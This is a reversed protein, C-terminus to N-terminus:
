DKRIIVREGAEWDKYENTYYLYATSAPARFTGPIDAKLDLNVTKTEEPKLQRFYFVVYNKRIEYFDVVGKEQLEKLQWPQPSLGSPIGVLTVNMPLGENTKNKVTTTIRVLEGMLVTSNNTKTTIDVKCDTDSSPTRSTWSFDLSYPLPNETNFYSVTFSQRGPKQFRELNDAVIAEKDGSSYALENIKSGNYSIEIMGGGSSARNFKAYETLARLALITAQTSGFGGGNRGSVIYELSQNFVGINRPGAKLEAMTYLAATEISLSKGGSCTISPDIRLKDWSSNKIKEAMIGLLMDGDADRNLNFAANAILALRYPDKSEKAENFASLYEPLNDKYGSESLAYVIYANTVEKSARGFQDLARQSKVFGGKGDRQNLVWKLTRNIMEEDVGHYVAKMDTFELLGYATLGDHAPSQGFWEYGNQSTEFSILKSYGKKILGLAKNRLANDNLGTENLYRLVMINPYTSSSTQEFCGYPERLISEIGSMLDSLISPFATFRGSLSGPVIDGTMFEINRSKENGSFSVKAPFGVPFVEIEKEFSDSYNNSSFLVSIKFIGPINKVIYGPYLTTATGADISINVPITDFPELCAPADIILSGTVKHDTNNKIILPFYVTDTFVMYPPIKIDMSFPLQTYYRYEERGALGETGIGEATVNFTTVEDSNYFNLTAEGKENTIVDPNWYITNRFDTRVGPIETSAYKPSYFERVQSFQRPALYTCSYKNQLEKTLKRHNSRGINKTTIIIVGNAARSGYISTLSADKVVEISTINEPNIISGTNEGIDPSVPIGDVIYLPQGSNELTAIGRIRVNAPANPVGDNNTIALGAVRGQLAQELTRNPPLMSRIEDPKVVTIAGTIDAKRVIGYGVVVVEELAQIDETLSIKKTASGKVPIVENVPKKEIVKPCIIEPIIIHEAAPNTLQNKGKSILSEQDISLLVAKERHWPADAFIFRPVSPDSGMFMFRGSKGTKLKEIRRQNNLELMYITAKVGNGNLTNVRGSVLGEQEPLFQPVPERTLVEEWTFRRYGQTMLLYDLAKPAKPEDKKFYFSPEEIKGKLDSSMLLWSLIHDQKDAMMSIIKENVVSVSLNGSVPKNKYDTTRINLKVMERPAYKKKDTSISIKLNKEPNIFVLREACAVGHHDFITIQAIGAPCENIPLEVERFGKKGSHTVTHCIKGRVQLVISYQPFEPACVSIRIINQTVTDLRMVAGSVLAKPLEYKKSIGKPNTILARYQKDSAPILIFAGMGHHFSKFSCVRNDDSDVIVGEIDAPKGFENLAKFAVRCETNHVMEGGEPFFQLDINNLVIPISRSISESNGEYNIVVNLLGDNTTLTDPLNFSITLKGEASTKHTGNLFETGKLFASYRVTYNTLPENELTKISTKAEVLNGAGYAKKAFELDMLLRPAVLKQVTIEKTFFDDEGSNKLWTTYVKIKYIGGPDGQSLSFDGKAGGKIVPLTKSEKVGGKPDILEAYVVNSIQSPSHDAGNCLYIKFWIDDGPTYLPKDVHVYIKEQPLKENFSTLKEKLLNLFGTLDVMRYKYTALALLSFAAIVITYKITKM